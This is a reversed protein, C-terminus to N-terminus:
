VRSVHEVPVWGAPEGVEGSVPSQVDGRRGRASPRVDLVHCAPLQQGGHLQHTGLAYSSPREAQSRVPEIVRMGMFSYFTDLEHQTYTGNMRYYSLLVVKGAVLALLATDNM